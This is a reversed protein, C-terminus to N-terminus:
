RFSNPREGLKVNIISESGDRVVVLEIEDEPEFYNLLDLLSEMDRIRADNMRTIIDGKRLGAKDAPGDKLLGIIRAGQDDGSEIHVGMYADSLKYKDDSFVFLDEHLNKKYKRNKKRGDELAYHRAVKRKDKHAKMRKRIVVDQDDDMSKIDIDHEELLEQMEEPMNGEGDWEYDFVEDGDGVKKIVIMKHKDVIVDDGDVTIEIRDSDSGDLSSVDIDAAELERRIDEPIEGEDTWEYVKREGDIKTVIKIERKGDDENVDVTVSKNSSQAFGIIPLLLLIFVIQKM